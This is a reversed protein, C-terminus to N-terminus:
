RGDVAVGVRLTSSKALEGEFHFRFQNFLFISGKLQLRDNM